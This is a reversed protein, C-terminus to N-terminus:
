QNFIALQLHIEESGSLNAEDSLELQITGATPSFALVEVFVGDSSSKVLAPQGLVHGAVGPPFTVNYVGSGAAAVTTDPSSDAATLTGDPGIKVFVLNVDVFQQPAYLNRCYSQLAM